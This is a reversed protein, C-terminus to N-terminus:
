YGIEITAWYTRENDINNIMYHAVDARSIKLCNRLFSNIAVRYNGTVPKDSLQPPRIITWALGTEKIRREMEGLDAYM